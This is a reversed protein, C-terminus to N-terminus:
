LKHGSMWGTLSPRLVNLTSVPCVTGFCMSRKTAQIQTLPWMVVSRHNKEFKRVQYSSEMMSHRCMHYMWVM